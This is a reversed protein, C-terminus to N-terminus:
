TLIGWKCKEEHTLMRIDLDSIYMMDPGFSWMHYVENLVKNYQVKIGTETMYKNGPELWAENIENGEEDYLCTLMIINNKPTVCVLMPGKKSGLYYQIGYANYKKMIYERTSLKVFIVNHHRDMKIGLGRSAIYSEM